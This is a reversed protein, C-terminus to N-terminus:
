HPHAACPGACRHNRWHAIAILSGGITMGLIEAGQWPSIESKALLICAAGLAFLALPGRHRHQRLYSHSLRLSAILFSFGIITWELREDGLWGFGAIAILLPLTACHVACVGSVWMGVRDLSGNGALRSWLTPHAAPAPSSTEMPSLM